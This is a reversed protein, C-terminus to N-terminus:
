PAPSSGPRRRTQCRHSSRSQNSSAVAGFGAARWLRACRATFGHSRRVTMAAPRESRTSRRWRNARGRGGATRPRHAPAAQERPLSPDAVRDLPAATLCVEYRGLQSHPPAYLAALGPDCNVVVAPTGTQAAAAAAALWFAFGLVTLV